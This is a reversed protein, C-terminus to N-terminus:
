RITEGLVQVTEGTIGRSGPGALFLAVSAVDDRGVYTVDEGMESRNQDTDMLGPAIANVRM